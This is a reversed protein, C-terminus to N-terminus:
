EENISVVVNGIKAGSDVYAHAAQIEDLSYRRDIIPKIVGRRVWELLAAQDEASYEAMRFEVRKGSKGNARMARLMSSGRPNGIVYCGGPVIKNLTENFSANGVIDILVDWRQSVDVFNTRRYDIVEDAGIHRLMELKSEADVATVHAGIAKAIQIAYTGITGGAGNILLRHGAQLQGVSIFHIANLGGTILTASEEFSLTDPKLMIPYSEPLCVYEACGGLRLMTAAVIKDGPKFRTVGHGVAEILGSVEQGPVIGNSRALAFYIRLPIRFLAPFKMTRLECDGATVTTNIVKILIEKNGPRPKPIEKLKLFDPPGYREIVIAKM